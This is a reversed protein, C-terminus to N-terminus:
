DLGLLGKFKRKVKSLGLKVGAYRMIRAMQAYKDREYCPDPCKRCRPKPDHPCQTLREVAYAFLSHCEGCLGIEFRFVKGGYPVEYTKLFQGTHKDHCYVPFMRRLTNLEREFDEVKV